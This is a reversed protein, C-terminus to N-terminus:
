KDNIIHNAALQALASAKIIYEPNNKFTKLWNNIYASSNDVTKEFFRAMSCLYSAGLEAILEEFSYDESGFKKVKMLNRRNLRNEHGTSHILEHFLTSYYEEVNDFLEKPPVNVLDSLPIYYASGQRHTIKPKNEWYRVINEAAQIPEHRFIVPKEMEPIKSAAIDTNEVNYVSSNQIVFKTRVLDDPVSKTTKPDIFGKGSKKANKFLGQKDKYYFSKTYFIVPFSDDQNLVRGGLSRAQSSTVFWPSTYESFWSLYLLNIGRYPNKSVLNMPMFGSSAVGWPKRWPVVGKELSEIIKVNVIEYVDQKQVPKSDKSWVVLEWPETEEINGAQFELGNKSIQNFGSIVISDFNREEAMAIILKMGDNGGYKKNWAVERKEEKKVLHVFTKVVVWTCGIGFAYEKTEKYSIKEDLAVMLDNFTEFKGVAM